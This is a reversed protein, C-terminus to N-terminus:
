EYEEVEQNLQFLDPHNFRSCFCCQYKEDNIHVCGDCGIGLDIKPINEIERKSLKIGHKIGDYFTKNRYKEFSVNKQLEGLRSLIIARIKSPKM